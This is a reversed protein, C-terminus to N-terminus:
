GLINNLKMEENPYKKTIVELIKGITRIGNCLQYIKMGSLNLLHVYDDQQIIFGDSLETIESPPIQVPIM